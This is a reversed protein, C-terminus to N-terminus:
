NWGPGSPGSCPCSDSQVTGRALRLFLSLPVGEKARRVLLYWRAVLRGGSLQNVGRVLAPGRGRSPVARTVVTCLGRPFAQVVLDEPGWESNLSGCHIKLLLIQSSDLLKCGEDGLHNLPGPFHSFM